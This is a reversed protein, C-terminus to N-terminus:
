NLIDLTTHMFIQLLSVNTDIENYNIKTQSRDLFTSLFCTPIIDWDFISRNNETVFLKTNNGWLFVNSITYYFDRGLDIKDNM